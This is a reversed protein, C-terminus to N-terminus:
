LQSGPALEDGAEGSSRAAIRLTAVIVGLALAMWVVGWVPGPIGTIQGLAHADSGPVSRLILDAAIDEVVYLCSVTGICRLALDSFRPALKWAALVMAVSAVLGYVFGFLTRIYLVTLVGTVGGVGGLILRDSRSRTALLLLLAGWGLSGVYGASLIVFRWGGRTVCLGGENSTLEIREVAGGTLVAAVGHSIEHLLVVFVKLPFVVPTRWLLLAVIGAVIPVVIGERKM